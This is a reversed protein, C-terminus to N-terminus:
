HERLRQIQEVSFGTDEMIEEMPRGRKLLKRAIEKRGQQVGFAVMSQQDRWAKVRAEHAMKAKDDASLEILKVVAKKVDPKTQALMNLAEDTCYGVSEKLPCVQRQLLIEWPFEARSFTGPSM